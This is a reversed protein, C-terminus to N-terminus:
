TVPSSICPSFATDITQTDTCQAALAYDDVREYEQLYSLGGVLESCAEGWVTGDKMIRVVKGEFLVTFGKKMLATVSLLDSDVHLDPVLLVDSIM